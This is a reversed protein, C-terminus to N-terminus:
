GKRGPSKKKEEKGGELRWLGTRNLTEKRTERRYGFKEIKGKEHMTEFCVQVTLKGHVDGVVQAFSMWESSGNSRLGQVQTINGINEIVVQIQAGLEFSGVFVDQSHLYRAVHSDRRVLSASIQMEAALVNAKRM